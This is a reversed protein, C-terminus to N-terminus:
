SRVLPQVIVKLMVVTAVPSEAGAAPRPGLRLSVGYALLMGPVAMNAVLQLPDGILSPIEIGTVSLFLGVLSGVTLPNRFPRAPPGCGPGARCTM